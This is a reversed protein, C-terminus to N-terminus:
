SKWKTGWKSILISLATLLVILVVSLASGFPWDRAKLFQETILNGVLMSKAGGLLDPIVFEGLTPIFVLLCGNAIATRTNPLLVQTLATWPTGGLDYVAEVLSFDFKELASYIPFIMFPLYCFLMGYMVLYQNQSFAYPDNEIGLTNLLQLLPGDFGVFLRIAYVRIILNMLFPISVLLVLMQRLSSRATAMAWAMPFGTVFCMLTTSSALVFSKFFIQLYVPAFVREYSVLSLNYEIGGYTGRSMLSTIFVLLLPGIMFLFFWIM